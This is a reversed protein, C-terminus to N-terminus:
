SAAWVGKLLELILLINIFHFFSFFFFYSQLGTGDSGRDQDGGCPEHECSLFRNLLRKENETPLLTKQGMLFCRSGKPLFTLFCNEYFFVKLPFYFLKVPPLQPFLIYIEFEDFVKKLYISKKLNQFFHFVAKFNMKLVATIITKTKTTTTAETEVLIKAATAATATIKTTTTTTADARTTSTTADTATTRNRCM